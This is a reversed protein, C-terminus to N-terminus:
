LFGADMQISILTRLTTISFALLLIFSFQEWDESFDLTKHRSSKSIESKTVSQFRQNWIEKMNFSFDGIETVFSIILITSYLDWILNM